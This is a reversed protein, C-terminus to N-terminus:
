GEKATIHFSPTQIPISRTNTNKRQKHRISKETNHQSYNRLTTKRKKNRKENYTNNYEDDFIFKYKDYNICKNDNTQETYKHTNNNTCDIYDCTNGKCNSIWQFVDDVNLRRM